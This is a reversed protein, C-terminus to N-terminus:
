ESRTRPLRETTPLDKKPGPLLIPLPDRERENIQLRINQPQLTVFTWVKENSTSFEAGDCHSVYYNDDRRRPAGWIYSNDEDTAAPQLKLRM